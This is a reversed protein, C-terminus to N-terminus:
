HRLGRRVNGEGVATTRLWSGTPISDAHPACQVMGISHSSGMAERVAAEHSQRPIEGAATIGASSREFGLSTNGGHPCGGSLPSAPQECGHPRLRM